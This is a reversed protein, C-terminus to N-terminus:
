LRELWNELKEQSHFLHKEWSNYQTKRDNEGNHFPSAALADIALMMAREAKSLDGTRKLLENLRAMGKQKRAPTFTYMKPNKGLQDIYYDWVRQLAAEREDPVEVDFLPKGLGVGVGIGHLVEDPNGGSDTQLEDFLEPAGSKYRSRHSEPPLRSDIGVWKGWVKGNAKRELLGVREFEDLIQEVTEITIDPRNYSYVDAWVRRATCEFTGDALALPILNAYEGRFSPPQVQALKDSRWLADGDVIRKPM